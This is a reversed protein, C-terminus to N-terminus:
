LKRVPVRAKVEGGADKVIVIYSGSPVTNLTFTNTAQSNATWNSIVPRGMMDFVSINDSINLGTINLADKAPNPYVKIDSNTNVNNIGLTSPPPPTVVTDKHSAVIASDMAPLSFAFFYNITAQNAPRKTTLATTRAVSDGVSDVTALHPIYM